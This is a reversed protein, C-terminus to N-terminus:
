KKPRLKRNTGYLQKLVTSPPMRQPKSSMKYSKGKFTHESFNAGELQLFLTNEAEMATQLANRAYVIQQVDKCQVTKRLRAGDVLADYKNQAIDINLLADNWQKYLNIVRTCM